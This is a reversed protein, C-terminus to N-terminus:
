ESVQDIYSEFQKQWRGYRQQLAPNTTPQFVSEPEISRISSPLTLWAAGLATIEHQPYRLVPLGSIDALGQCLSNLQSIGGGIVIDSADPLSSMAQINRRALFIISELVGVLRAKPEEDEGIWCSRDLPCWYPSGVGGVMNMFLPPDSFQEPWLDLQRSHPRCINFAWDLANAAGNITAEASYVTQKGTLILHHLLKEQPHLGKESLVRNLFGGSGLNIYLSQPDPEGFAYLAAAQDGSVFNLPLECGPLKLTGYRYQCPKIEPLMSAPIQFLDLLEPHWNKEQLSYLMTRAATVGDIMNPHEHLLQKILWGAVPGAKIRHRATHFNLHELCWRLKSAPLHANPYLGTLQRIMPALPALEDIYHIGRRDQWSIVPTLAEGTDADWCMVSSRQTILAASKLRNRDLGSLKSVAELAARKLSILIQEPSQEARNPPTLQIKVRVQAQSLCKGFRDFVM